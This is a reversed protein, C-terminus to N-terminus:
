SIESVSAFFTVANSSSSVRIFRSEGIALGATLFLTDNGSVPTDYLRWNAAGPTGESGMVAIRVTQTSASTNCVGINSLVASTGATTSYLTAYTTVASTGQVEADSYSIAM